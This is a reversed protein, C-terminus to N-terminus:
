SSCTICWCKFYWRSRENGKCYINRFNTCRIFSNPEGVRPASVFAPDPKMIEEKYSNVGEEFDLWIVMINKGQPKLKSLETTIEGFKNPDKM